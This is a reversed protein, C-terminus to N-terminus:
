EEKPVVHDPFYDIIEKDPGEVSNDSAELNDSTGYTHSGRRINDSHHGDM